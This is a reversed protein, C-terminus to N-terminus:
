VMEGVVIFETGIDKDQDSLPNLHFGEAFHSERVM